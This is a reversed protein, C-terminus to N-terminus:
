YLRTFYLKGGADIEVVGKADINKESIATIIGNSILLSGGAIINDPTIINGNFIKFDGTNM